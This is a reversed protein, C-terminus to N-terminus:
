GLDLFPEYPLRRDGLPSPTRSGPSLFLFYKGLRRCCLVSLFAPIEREKRRARESGSKRCKTRLEGEKGMVKRSEFGANSSLDHAVISPQDLDECVEGAITQLVGWGPPVTL